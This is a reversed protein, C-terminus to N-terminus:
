DKTWVVKNQDWLFRVLAFSNGLSSGLFSGPRGLAEWIQAHQKRPRFLFVQQLAFGAAGSVFLIIILLRFLTGVGTM